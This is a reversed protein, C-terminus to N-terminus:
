PPPLDIPYHVTSQCAGPFFHMSSLPQIQM